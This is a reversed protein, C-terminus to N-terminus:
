WSQCHEWPLSLRRLRRGKVSIGRVTSSGWSWGSQRRQEWDIRVFLVLCCCPPSQALCCSTQRLDQREQGDSALVGIRDHPGSNGGGEFGRCFLRNTGPRLRRLDYDKTKLRRIINGGFVLPNEIISPIAGADNGSWSFLPEWGGVRTPM